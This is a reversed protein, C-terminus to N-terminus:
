YLCPKRIQYQMGFYRRSTIETHILSNETYKMYIKSSPCHAATPCSCLAGPNYMHAPHWRREKPHATHVQHSPFSCKSRAKGLSLISSSLIFLFLQHHLLGPHVWLLVLINQFAWSSHCQPRLSCVPLWLSITPNAKQLDWLGMSFGRQWGSGRSELGVGLDKAPNLHGAFGATLRISSLLLFPHLSMWINPHPEIKCPFRNLFLSKRGSCSPVTTATGHQATYSENEQQCSDTRSLGVTPDSGLFHNFCTFKASQTQPWCTHTIHCSHIEYIGWDNELNSKTRM